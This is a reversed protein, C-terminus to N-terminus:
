SSRSGPPKAIFICLSKWRPSAASAATPPRSSSTTAARGRGEPDRFFLAVWITLVVGVLVLALTPGPWSYWVVLLALDLALAVRVFPWGEPALRM